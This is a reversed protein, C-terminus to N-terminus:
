CVVNFEGGAIWATVAKVCQQAIGSSAADTRWANHPTIVVNDLSRLPDDDPLPETDFVDLGACIDGKELRELLAASDVLQSRATNILAAGPRMRALMGADVIGRTQRNLEMHLSVVDAMGFLEPLSAVEAVGMQRAQAAHSHRSWEVVNMGLGVGIAATARGIGGFGAIGLTRGSLQLADCGPWGGQRMRRDMRGTRKALEFMLAIAHEAVSQDGYHVVNCVRVGSEAALPVNIYNAIGTGGFAFCRVTKALADFMADTVHFGLVIVADAGECRRTLEGSDTIDHGDAHLRVRAVGDFRDLIPEFAAELSPVCNPIVVLPLDTREMNRETVSM